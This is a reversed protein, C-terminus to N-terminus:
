FYKNIEERSPYTILVARHKGQYVFCAGGAVGSANCDTIASKFDLLGRAGGAAVIQINVSGSIMKILNFDYGCMMGDNDISNIVIEGAGRREVEKAWDVPNLKTKEKGGSIYVEYKGFFNKKVDISVVITSNGFYEAAKNIIEPNKVANTNISVKEVGINLVERIMEVSKIGGGYTLPMFCETAIDKLINWNIETNDYSKTIDLFVLEDVEKENFIRIANIPDGIYKPDKFKITKYLGSNKLLLIPIIRPRLKKLPAFV